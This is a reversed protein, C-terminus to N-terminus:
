RKVTVLRGTDDRQDRVINPFIAYDREHVFKIRRDHSMQLCM